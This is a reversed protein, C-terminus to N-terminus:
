PLLPMQSIRSNWSDGVVSRRTGAGTASVGSRLKLLLEESAAYMLAFAASMRASRWTTGGRKPPCGNWTAGDEVVEVRPERGADIGFHAVVEREVGAVAAM